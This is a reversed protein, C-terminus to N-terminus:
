SVPLGMVLKEPVASRLELLVHVAPQVVVAANVFPTRAEVETVRVPPPEPAVIVAVFVPPESAPVEFVNVTLPAASSWKATSFDPPPDIPVCVAPVAKGTRM